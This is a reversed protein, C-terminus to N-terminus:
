LKINKLSLARLWPLPYVKRSKIFFLFFQLFASISFAMAIGEPGVNKSLVINLVILFILNGISVMSIYNQKDFNILIPQIFKTLGIFMFGIAIWSIYDTATSYSEPALINLIMGGFLQLFAFALILIFTLVYFMQSLKIRNVTKFNALQEFLYPTWSMSIALYLLKMSFAIQFGVSYIGVLTKTFFFQMFFIGIQSNLLAQLSNPILPLFYNLLGRIRELSIQFTIFKKNKLYVFSIILSIVFSLIIGLVRGQWGM